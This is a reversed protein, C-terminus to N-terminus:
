EFDIEDKFKEKFLEYVATLVDMDEVTAYTEEDNEEDASEVQLIVVEGDEEDLPLLIAYKEGQYDIVTLYEMEIENGDEDTLVLINMDESM